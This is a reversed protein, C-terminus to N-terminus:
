LSLLNWCIQREWRCERAVQSITSVLNFFTGLSPSYHGYSNSFFVIPRGYPMCKQPSHMSSPCAQNNWSLLFCVCLGFCNPYHVNPTWNSFMNSGDCCIPMCGVYLWDTFLGNCLPFVELADLEEHFMTLNPQVYFFISLLCAIHSLGIIHM